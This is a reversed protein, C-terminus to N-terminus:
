DVGRSFTANSEYGDPTVSRDLPLRDRVIVCYTRAGARDPVCTRYVSGAQITFTDTHAANARFPAPAHTGIYAAARTIADREAARDSTIASSHVLGLAAFGITVLAVCATGAYNRAIAPPLDGRGVRLLAGLPRCLLVVCLLNLLLGVVVGGVISQGDGNLPLLHGIFGDAIGLVAFAPWMWAGRYRWRARALWAGDM